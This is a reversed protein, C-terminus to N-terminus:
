AGQAVISTTVSLLEASIIVEQASWFPPCSVRHLTLDVGQQEWIGVTRASAPAMPRAADAVIDIWHVPTNAPALPLVDLEDLSLALAPAIEYGAVEVASGAAFAERLTRTSSTKEEGDEMMQNALRLRLFQTLFTEGSTVPHWLILSQIADDAHRAYDL